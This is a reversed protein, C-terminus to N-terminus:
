NHLELKPEDQDFRMRRIGKWVEVAIGLCLDSLGCFSTLMPLYSVM